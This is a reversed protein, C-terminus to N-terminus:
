MSPELTDNFQNIEGLGAGNVGALSVTYDGFVQPCYQIFTSTITNTLVGDVTTINYQYGTVPVGEITPPQTWTYNLCCHDQTTTVNIYNLYDLYVSVSYLDTDIEYSVKFLYHIYLVITSSHVEM